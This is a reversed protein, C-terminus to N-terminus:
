RQTFLTLYHKRYLTNIGISIKRPILNCYKGISEAINSLAAIDQGWGKKIFFMIFLDQSSFGNFKEKQPFEVIRDYRKQKNRDFVSYNPQLTNCSSEIKALSM